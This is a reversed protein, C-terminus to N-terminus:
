KGGGQPFLPDDWGGPDLIDWKDPQGDLTLDAVSATDAQAEKFARLDRQAKKRPEESAKFNYVPKLRDKVTVTDGICAEVQASDKYAGPAEDLTAESVCSSWIGAGQMQQEYAHLSLTRKAEGRSMKRGAGHPASNNWDANGLGEGLILGDRMNWPIIVPQGALASVAGKRIIDDDGIYNHVSEIMQWNQWDGVPDLLADFMVLRNLTAVQQAIRMDHLYEEADAGELWELGTPKSVMKGKKSVPMTGQARMAKMQHFDAVKLGFNRSGSHITVWKRGDSKAEDVEVFHNGGGLSGISLIVRNFDAGVKTAVRALELQFAVWQANNGLFRLFLRVLNPHAKDRVNFGSPVAKRLHDDFKQFDFGNVIEPLQVSAIGCGIDVGIVYPIVGQGVPSTFGIVSGSGQHVDPMIRIQCGAFAPHNLFAMVQAIAGAEIDLTFVKGSTQSGKFEMMNPNAVM